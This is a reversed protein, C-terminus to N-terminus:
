FLPQTLLFRIEPDIILPSMHSGCIAYHSDTKLTLKVKYVDTIPVVVKFPREATNFQIPGMLDRGDGFVYFTIGKSSDYTPHDDSFGLSFGLIEHNGGINYEISSNFHYGETRLCKNYTKGRVVVRSAKSIKKENIPILDFLYKPQIEKSDIPPESPIHPEDAESESKSSTNRGNRIRNSEM